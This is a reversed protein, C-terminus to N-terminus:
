EATKVIEATRMNRHHIECVGAQHLIKVAQQFTERGNGSGSVTVVTVKLERDLAEKILFTRFTPPLQGAWVPTILVIETVKHGPSGSLQYPVERKMLTHIAGKIFGWTGWYRKEPTDRVEVLYGSSEKAYTRALQACNGSRSYFIIRIAM